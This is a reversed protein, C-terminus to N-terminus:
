DKPLKEVGSGSGQIGQTLRRILQLARQRTRQDETALEKRLERYNGLSTNDRYSMDGFFAAMEFFQKQTWHDFPHNHCQACELRTGLFLRVTNAMSDHPMGNDRMLHGTAGNATGHAAGEAVLLQRVFKDYPVDDIVAQRIFHAFPEGSLQRQRSKVRLQDFWYNSFHSSRGPSDLLMDCLNTRKDPDQDALFRETEQLSPIRGVVNLYARRVFTADDVLPLAEAQHRQLGRA